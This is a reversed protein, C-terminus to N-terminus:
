QLLWALRGRPAKSLTHKSQPFLGGVGLTAYAQGEATIPEGDGDHAGIAPM